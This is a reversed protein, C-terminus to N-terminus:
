ATEPAPVFGYLLNMEDILKKKLEAELKQREARARDAQRVRGVIADFRGASFDAVLTEITADSGFKDALMRSIIADAQGDKTYKTRITSMAKTFSKVIKTAEVRNSYVNASTGM